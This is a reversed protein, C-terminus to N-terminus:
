LFRGIFDDLDKGLQDIGTQQSKRQEELKQLANGSALKIQSIREKGGAEEGVAAKFDKSKLIKQTQKLEAVQRARIEELSKLLSGLQARVQQVVAPAVSASEKPTAEVELAPVVIPIGAPINELDALHPNAARLSAEIEKERAKAGSGKIEFLQHTLESLSRAGKTVTFKM